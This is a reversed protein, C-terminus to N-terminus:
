CGQALYLLGLVLIWRCMQVGFVRDVQVLVESLNPVGSNLEYLVNAVNM